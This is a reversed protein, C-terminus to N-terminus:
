IAMLSCGRTEAAAARGLLEFGAGHRVALDETQIAIVSYTNALDFVRVLGSEGDRVEDGTEPSIMQVRAWPPFHFPRVPLSPSRPRLNGLSDYAQSSLESMGYEGIIQEPPIGLFDHILLHLESKSLSRARGKYGGTELARSGPPLQFRLKQAALYDLLHVFSFATGLIFGPLKSHSLKELSAVVSQYDLLWGADPGVNGLFAGSPQRKARRITEFMHVLSSHPAQESPPTLILLHLNGAASRSPELAKADFWTLLSSEYIALSAANHFHRSPRHETTGSSYFVSNRQDLPLCSLDLEKFAATPVSPVQTWHEISQPSAGRSECFKRYVPNQEFQLAFLELALSDFRDNNGSGAGLSSSSRVFDNLRSTFPEFISQGRMRNKIKGPQNDAV